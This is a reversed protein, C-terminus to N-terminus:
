DSFVDIKPSDFTLIDIVDDTSVILYNLLGEPIRQHPSQYKAWDLLDSEESVYIGSKLVGMEKWRRWLDGEDFNRYGYFSEFNINARINKNRSNVAIINIGGIDDVFKEVSFPLIKSIDTDIPTFINM